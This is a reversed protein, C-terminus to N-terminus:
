PGAAATAQGKGQAHAHAHAGAGGGERAGSIVTKLHVLQGTSVERQLM